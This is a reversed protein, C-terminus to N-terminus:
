HRFLTSSLLVCQFGPLPFYLYYNARNLCLMLNHNLVIFVLWLLVCAQESGRSELILFHTFVHSFRVM